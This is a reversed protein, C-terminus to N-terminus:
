GEQEKIKAVLGMLLRWAKADKMCVAVQQQLSKIRKAQFEIKSDRKTLETTLEKIRTGADGNKTGLKGRLESVVELLEDRERRVAGLSDNAKHLRQLYKDQIELSDQLHGTVRHLALKLRDIEPHDSASM